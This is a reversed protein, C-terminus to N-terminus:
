VRKELVAELNGISAWASTVIKWPKPKYINWLGSLDEPDFYALTRESVPNVHTPDQWYGVSGPYPTSMMLRGGPRLLRWWEDMAKIFGFNNPDVHEVVHSALISICCGDPLPYPMNSWDWVLDVGDLERIDMGVFNPQKNEGCGIDLHIGSKEKLLADIDM